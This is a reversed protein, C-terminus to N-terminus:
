GGITEVGSCDQIFVTDVSMKHMAIQLEGNM